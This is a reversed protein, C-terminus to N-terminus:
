WQKHVTFGMKIQERIRGKSIYIGDKATGLKVASFGMTKHEMKKM